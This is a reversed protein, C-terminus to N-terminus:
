KIDITYRAILFLLRYASGLSIYWTLPTGPQRVPTTRVDLTDRTMTQFCKWSAKVYEYSEVCDTVKCKILNHEILLPLLDDWDQKMASSVDDFDDDTPLVRLWIGRVMPDFLRTLLNARFDDNKANATRNKTLESRPPDEAKLKLVACTSPTRSRLSRTMTFCIPQGFKMTYIKQVIQYKSRGGINTSISDFSEAMSIIKPWFLTMSSTM